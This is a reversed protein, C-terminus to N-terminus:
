PGTALTFTLNSTYSGATADAPVTLVLDGGAANGQTM